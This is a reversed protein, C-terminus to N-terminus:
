EGVAERAVDPGWGSAEAYLARWQRPSKGKFLDALDIHPLARRIVVERHRRVISVREGNRLGLVKTILPFGSLL